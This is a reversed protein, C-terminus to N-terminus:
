HLNPMSQANQLRSASGDSDTNALGGMSAPSRLTSLSKPSDWSCHRRTLWKGLETKLEAVGTMIRQRDLDTSVTKGGASTASSELRSVSRALSRAIMTHTRLKVGELPPLEFCGGYVAKSHGPVKWRVANMEDVFPKLVPCVKLMQRVKKRSKMAAVIERREIFESADSDIIEFVRRIEVDTPRKGGKRMSHSAGLTSLASASRSLEDAPLGLASGAGVISSSMTSEGAAPPEDDEQCHDYFGRLCVFHFEDYTVEGSADVDMEAFARVAPSQVALKKPGEQSDFPQTDLVTKREVIEISRSWPVPHRARGPLLPRLAHMSASSAALRQRLHARMREKHEAQAAAIQDVYGEATTPTGAAQVETAQGLQAELTRLEESAEQAQFVRDCLTFRKVQGMKSACQGRLTKVNAELRIRLSEARRRDSSNMERCKKLLKRHSLPKGSGPSASDRRGSPPIGRGPM